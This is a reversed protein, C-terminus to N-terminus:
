WTTTTNLLSRSDESIHAVVPSTMAEIAGIGLIMLNGSLVHLLLVHHLMMGHHLDMPLDDLLMAIHNNSTSFFKKTM